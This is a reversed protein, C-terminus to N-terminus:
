KTAVLTDHLSLPYKLVRTGPYVTYGFGPSVPGPYAVISSGSLQLLLIASLTRHHVELCVAHGLILYGPVRTGYGPTGFRISSKDNTPATAHIAHPGALSRAFKSLGQSRCRIPIVHTQYLLSM